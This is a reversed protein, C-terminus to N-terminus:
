LNGCDIFWLDPNNWSGGLNGVTLQWWKDIMLLIIQKITSLFSFICSDQHSAHDHNNYNCNANISEKIKTLYEALCSILNTENIYWGTGSYVYLLCM